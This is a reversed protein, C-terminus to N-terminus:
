RQSGGLRGERKEPSAESVGDCASPNLHLSSALPIPTKTPFPALLICPDRRPARAPHPSFSHIHATSLISIRCPPSRPRRARSEPLTSFFISLCLLICYPTSKSTREAKQAASDLLVGQLASKVKPLTARRRAIFKGRRATCHQRTM